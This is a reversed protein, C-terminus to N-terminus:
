PPQERAGLDGGGRHIAPPWAAAPVQAQDEGVFGGFPEDVQAGAEVGCQASRRGPDRATGVSRTLLGIGALRQRLGGSRSHPPSTTPRWTSWSWMGAQRTSSGSAERIIGARRRADQYAEM